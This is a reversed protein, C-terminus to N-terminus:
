GKKALLSVKNKASLVQQRVTEAQRALDEMEHSQAAQGIEAADDAVKQMRQQVEDLNGPGSKLLEQVEKAMQGLGGMRQLLEAFQKRRGAIEQARAMLAAADSEQKQRAQAVAQVLKQVHANIRDQSEAARTLDDTARELSKESNLKVHAAQAALDEFRRLEHDLALAAEALESPKDAKTM